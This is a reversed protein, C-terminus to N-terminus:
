NYCNTDIKNLIEPLLKPRLASDMACNSYTESTEKWLRMYEFYNFIDYSVGNKLTEVWELINRDNVNESLICNLDTGCYGGKIMNLFDIILKAEFEINM